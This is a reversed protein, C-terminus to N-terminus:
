TRSQLKNFLIENQHKGGNFIIFRSVTTRHFFGYQQLHDSAHQKSGEEIDSFDSRVNQECACKSSLNLNLLLIMTICIDVVNKLGIM